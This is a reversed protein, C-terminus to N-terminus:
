AEPVPTQRLTVPNHYISSRDEDSNGQEVKDDPLRDILPKFLLLLVAVIAMAIFFPGTFFCHRRGCRSANVLCAAGMWVLAVFWAWTKVAPTAFLAAVLLVLLPLGWVLFFQRPNNVWDGTGYSTEETMGKGSEIVTEAWSKPESGNLSGTSAYPPVRLPGAM